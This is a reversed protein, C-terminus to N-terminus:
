RSIVWRSENDQARYVALADHESLTLRLHPEYRPLRLSFMDRADSSASRVAEKLDFWLAAARVGISASPQVIKVTAGDAFHLAFRVPGREVPFEAPALAAGLSDRPAQVVRIPVRPRTSYARDVGSLITPTRRFGPGRSMHFSLIRCTRVPVGQMEVVLASDALDVFFGVADERASELRAQLVADVRALSDPLNGRVAQGDAAGHAQGADAATQASPVNTGDGTSGNGSSRLIALALPLIVTWLLVLIPVPLFALRFIGRRNAERPRNDTDFSPDTNM